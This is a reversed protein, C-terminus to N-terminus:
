NKLQVIVDCDSFLEKSLTDTKVSVSLSRFAARRKDGGVRLSPCLGLCGHAFPILLSGTLSPQARTPAHRLETACEGPPRPTAPEFGATGVLKKNGSLGGTERGNVLKCAM